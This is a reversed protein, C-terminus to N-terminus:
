ISPQGGPPLHFVWLFVRHRAPPPPAAAHPWSLPSPSSDTLLLQPLLGGCVSTFRHFHLEPPLDSIFIRAPSHEMRPGQPLRRGM